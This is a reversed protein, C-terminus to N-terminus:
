RLGAAAALVTRGEVPQEVAAVFATSMDPWRHNRLEAGLASVRVRWAPHHARWSRLRGVLEQVDDPDDLLMDSLESPFREAIGASRSVIVPVEACLAESVNLGYPEYRTPSVLLDAAALVDPIRGCHGLLHVRQDLGARRVTERISPADGGDGAVLLLPDWNPDSSLTTWANWLSDFGKRRDLGLAGVFAVVPRDDVIRLWQRAAAQQDRTFPRCQDDAGLYVTRIREAPVGLLKMVHTKTLESNTIVTRASRIAMKEAHRWRAGFARHKARFWLPAENSVGTWAHHVYHVWNIDSWQCNGGNVVVRAGPEASLLARAVERGRRDLGFEGLAFSGAPRSVLHITLRSDNSLVEDVDHAVLHVNAGRDALYAALEANAKDMGGRFHFGAAVLLWSTEAVDGHASASGTSM